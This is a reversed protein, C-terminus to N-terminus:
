VSIAPPAAELNIDGQVEFEHSPGRGGEIKRSGAFNVRMRGRKPMRHDLREILDVTESLFLFLVGISRAHAM